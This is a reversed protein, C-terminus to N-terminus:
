IVPDIHTLPDYSPKWEDPIECPANQPGVAHQFHRVTEKKVDDASTLLGLNAPSNDLCRDLLITHRKRDLISDIMKSQDTQFNDCRQELAQKITKTKHEDEKIKLATSILGLLSKIKPLNQRILDITFTNIPEFHTDYLPAFVKIKNYTNIWL